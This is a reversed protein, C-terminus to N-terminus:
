CPPLGYQGNTAAHVAAVGLGILLLFIIDNLRKPSDITKTM